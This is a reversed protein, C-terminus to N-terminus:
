RPRAEREAIQKLDRVDQELCRQMPGLMWQSLPAMLKAFLTLPRGDFEQEVRTGGNVPVFRFQTRYEMGCSVCHVVYSRPPDFDIIEMVEAHERGMMVRTERFRTGKGVPAPTLLELKVIAQIRGAANELDSFLAFVDAAPAAILETLAFHMLIVGLATRCFSWNRDVSRNLWGQWPLIETLPITVCIAAITAGSHGPNPGKSNRIRVSAASLVSVSALHPSVPRGRQAREHKRYGEEPTPYVIFQWLFRSSVCVSLFFLGLKHDFHPAPGSDDTDAEDATDARIRLEEDDATTQGGIEGWQVASHTKSGRFILGAPGLGGAPRSDGGTQAAAVGM